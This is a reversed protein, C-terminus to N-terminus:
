QFVLNVQTATTGSTLAFQEDRRRDWSATLPVTTIAPALSGASYSLWEPDAAIATDVIETGMIATGMIVTATTATNIAEMATAMVTVTRPVTATAMRTVMVMIDTRIAAGAGPHAGAGVGGGRSASAVSLSSMTAMITTGIAMGIAAMGIIVAGTAAMGIAAAGTGEVGTVAVGASAAGLAWGLVRVWQLSIIAAVLVVAVARLLQSSPLM